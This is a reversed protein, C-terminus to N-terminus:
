IGTLDGLDGIFQLIIFYHYLLKFFIKGFQGNLQQFWWCISFISCKDLFIFYPYNSTIHYFLISTKLSFIKGFQGDLNSHPIVLLNQWLYCKSLCIAATCSFFFGNSHEKHGRLNPRPSWKFLCMSATCSFIFIHIFQIPILCSFSFSKFIAACIFNICISFWVISTFM